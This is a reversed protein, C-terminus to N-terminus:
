KKKKPNNNELGKKMNKEKKKKEKLLKRKERKLEAEKKEAKKIKMKEKKELKIKTRKGRTEKERKTLEDLLVKKKEIFKGKGGSKIKLWNNEVNVDEKEKEGDIGESNAEDFMKGIKKEIEEMELDVEEEKEEKNKKGGGIFENM